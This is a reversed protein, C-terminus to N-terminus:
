RMGPSPRDEQGNDGNDGRHLRSWQRCMIHETLYKNDSSFFVILWPHPGLSPYPNARVAPMVGVLSGWKAWVLGMATAQACCLLM